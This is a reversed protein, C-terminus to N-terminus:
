KNSETESIKKLIKRLEAPDSTDMEAFEASAQGADKVLDNFMMASSLVIRADEESINNKQAVKEVLEKPLEERCKRLETNIWHVLEYASNGVPEDQDDPEALLLNRYPMDLICRHFALLRRENFLKVGLRTLPHTLLAEPIDDENFFRAWLFAQQVANSDVALPILSDSLLVAPDDRFTEALQDAACVEYEDYRFSLATDFQM